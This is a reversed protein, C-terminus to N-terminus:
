GDALLRYLARRAEAVIETAQERQEVTGASGVQRAAAHLQMVEGRLGAKGPKGFSPADVHAASEDAAQRGADTLEYVRKGDRESSRALGEDELQQLTPYISGASPRWAGNSRQELAQIVDYGHSPGDLLVALVGARVQGRRMRGWGGRGHGAGHGGGHGGRGGRRGRGTGGPPPGDRQDDDRM